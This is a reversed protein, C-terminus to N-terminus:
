RVCPYNRGMGIRRAASRSRPANSRCAGPPPSARGCASRGPFVRVQTRGSSPARPSPQCSKVKKKQTYYTVTSTTTRSVVCVGPAGRPSSHEVFVVSVCPCTSLTRHAVGLGVIRHGVVSEVRGLTRVCTSSYKYVACTCLVLVCRCALVCRAHRWGARAHAMAGGRRRRRRLGIAEGGDRM